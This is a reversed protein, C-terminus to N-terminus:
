IFTVTIKKKNATTNASTRVRNKKELGIWGPYNGDRSSASAWLTKIKPSIAITESERKSMENNVRRIRDCYTTKTTLFHKENVTSVTGSTILGFSCVFVACLSIDSVFLDIGLAKINQYYVNTTLSEIRFYPALM